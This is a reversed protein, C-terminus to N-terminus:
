EAACKGVTDRSRSTSEKGSDRELSGLDRAWRLGPVDASLIERRTAALISSYDAEMSLGQKTRLPTGFFTVM